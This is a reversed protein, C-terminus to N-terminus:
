RDSIVLALWGPTDPHSPPPLLPPRVATLMDPGAGGLEWQSGARGAQQIYSTSRLVGCAVQPKDLHSSVGSLTYYRTPGKHRKRLFGLSWPPCAARRALGAGLSGSAALTEASGLLCDRWIMAVWADLLVRSVIIHPRQCRPCGISVLLVPFPRCLGLLVGRQQGRAERREV